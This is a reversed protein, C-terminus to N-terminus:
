KEYLYDLPFLTLISPALTVSNYRFQLPIVPAGTGM